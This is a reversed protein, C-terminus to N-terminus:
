RGVVSLVVCCWLVPHWAWDATCSWGTALAVGVCGSSVVVCVCARVCWGCGGQHVRPGTDARLDRRHLRPLQTAPGARPGGRARHDRPHGRVARRGAAGDAPGTLQDVVCVYETLACRGRPRVFSVTAHRAWGPGHTYTPSYGPQTCVKGDAALALRALLPSIDHKIRDHQCKGHRHHRVSRSLGRPKADLGLGLGLGKVKKGNALVRHEHKHQHKHGHHHGHGHGHDHDDNHAMMRSGSKDATASSELLSSLSKKDYVSLYNTWFKVWGHTFIIDSGLIEGSRPDVVSPSLAFTDDVDPIWSVSSYRIDGADYDKPWEPEGPLVARIAKPGHGAAEFAPRWAEVGAKFAARWREPVTPDVYFTIPADASVRRRNIV